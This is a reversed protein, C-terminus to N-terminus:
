EDPRTAKPPSLYKKKFLENWRAVVSDLFRHIIENNIIFDDM